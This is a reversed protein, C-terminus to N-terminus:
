TNKAVVKLVSEANSYRRLYDIFDVNTLPKSYLYGQLYQCNTSLMFAAQAPTEVGEAVVSLDLSQAMSLIANVLAVDESITPLNMIFSHDIKLYSVPFKKLYSLSSYGTGFDDISLQVGLRRIAQLQNLTRDNDSFLLSETIELILREAPLGSELLVVKVLEPINQSQFQRSSLNVAVSPPKKHVISWTMAERCAERLVWEGIPVILGIEEALPIFEGPPVMGKETHQWRILAEASDVCGTETNIVPQYNLHFDGNDLAIHLAEELEKRRMAEDDMEQVFFQFQNRGKKKARYMASDAKRMLNVTNNGDDPFITIGISASVFSDRGEFHYPQALNKLIKNAIVEIDYTSNNEPLLIAFEDGGLRAVTDSKRMQSILRQSAEQLLKDGVLHGLTDNVHKFGDLDLYLLAVRTRKRQAIDLAHPFRDYFLNRNVLGTLADFNGQHWIRAENQKRHTIDVLTVPVSQFGETTQPIQFSIICNIENGDLTNYIAESRFVTKKGWIAHLGKTFVDIANEGFTESIRGFFDERSKAAFLRLTVENVELVKVMGALEWALQQNNLLYQELDTVGEQRLKNLTYFVKSFDENWISVESNDFLRKFNEESKRLAAYPTKLNSVIIANFILWFSFLKFIHGLLNSISHINIYYTFLLEACITMAISAILLKRERACIGDKIYLLSILASALIFVILYESYVKFHTIGQGEIFGTPFNGSLILASLAVALAGFIGILLYGNQKKMAVFPAAFLLLAEMYRAAIWFQVTLNGSGEVFVTMGKFVLTHMLDLYGIWLYGCALFVMFNNKTFERTSWALTFMVFSIIITFLEIFTHFALFSYQAVIILLLAIATPITWLRWQMLPNILKEPDTL